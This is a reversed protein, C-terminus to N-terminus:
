KLKFKKEVFLYQATHHYIEPASGTATLREVLPKRFLYALQPFKVPATYTGTFMWFKTHRENLKFIYLIFFRFVKSALYCFAFPM